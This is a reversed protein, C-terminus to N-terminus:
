PCVTASKCVLTCSCTHPITQFSTQQSIGSASVVDLCICAPAQAPVGAAHSALQACQGLSMQLLWGLHCM